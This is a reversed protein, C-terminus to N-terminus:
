QPPTGRRARVHSAFLLSAIATVIIGAVVLSTAATDAQYPGGNTLYVVVHLAIPVLGCVILLAGIAAAIRLGTGRGM